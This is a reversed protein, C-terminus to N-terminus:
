KVVKDLENRVMAAIALLRPANAARVAALDRPDIRTM